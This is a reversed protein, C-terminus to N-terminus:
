RSATWTGGQNECRVEPPDVFSDDEDRRYYRLTTRLEVTDLLADTVCVGYPRASPYAQECPQDIPSAGAFSSVMELGLERSYARGDEPTRDTTASAIQVDYCRAVGAEDEAAASGEFDWALEPEPAFVPRTPYPYSVTREDNAVVVVAILYLTTFIGVGISVARLMRRPSPAPTTPPTADELEDADRRQPDNSPMRSIEAGGSGPAGSWARVRAAHARLVACCAM